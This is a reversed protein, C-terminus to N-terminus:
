IMLLQGDRDKYLKVMKKIFDTDEMIHDSFHATFHSFDRFDLSELEEESLHEKLDDKRLLLPVMYAGEAIKTANKM